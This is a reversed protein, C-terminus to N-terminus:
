SDAQLSTYISKSEPSPPSRISLSDKPVYGPRVMKRLTCSSSSQEIDRLDMGNGLCTMTNSSFGRSAVPNDLLVQVNFERNKRRGVARSQSLAGVTTVQCGQDTTSFYSRAVLVFQIILFPHMQSWLNVTLQSKPSQETSGNSDQWLLPDGERWLGQKPIAEVWSLLLKRSAPLLASRLSRITELDWTWSFTLLGSSFALCVVRSTLASDGFRASM